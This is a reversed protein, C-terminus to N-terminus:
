PKHAEYLGYNFDRIVQLSDDEDRDHLFEGLVDRSTFESLLEHDINPVAKEIRVFKVEAAQYMILYLEASEVIYYVNQKGIENVHAHVTLINM